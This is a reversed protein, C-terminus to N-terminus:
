SGAELPDDEPDRPDEPDHGNNRKRGSWIKSRAEEYDAEDDDRGEVAESRGRAKTEPM